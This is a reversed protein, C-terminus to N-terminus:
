GVHCHVKKKKTFVLKKKPTRVQNPELRKEAFGGNATVRKILDNNKKKLLNMLVKVGSPNAWGGGGDCSTLGASEDSGVRKRRDYSHRVMVSTEKEVDIKKKQTHPPSCPHKLYLSWHNVTKNTPFFHDTITNEWGVKRGKKKKGKIERLAGGARLTSQRM